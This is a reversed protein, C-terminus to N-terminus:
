VTSNLRNLAAMQKNLLDMGAAINEQLALRQADADVPQAKYGTNLALYDMVAHFGVRRGERLLFVVQEPSLKERRSGNLCHRLWDDSNEDEPRLLPGVKKFGGLAMVLSKLADNLSDFCEPIVTQM